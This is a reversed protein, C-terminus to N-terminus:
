SSLCRMTLWPRGQGAINEVTNVKFLSGRMISPRLAKGWEGKEGLRMAAHFAGGASRRRAWAALRKVRSYGGGARLEALFPGIDSSWGVM